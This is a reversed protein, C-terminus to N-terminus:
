RGAGAQEASGSAPAVVVPLADHALLIPVPHQFPEPLHAAILLLRQHRGKRRQWPRVERGLRVAVSASRAGNVVTSSRAGNVVTFSRPGNAV